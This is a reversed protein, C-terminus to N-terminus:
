PRGGQGLRNGKGTGGSGKFSGTGGNGRRYGLGSARNDCIGDGDADIFTDKGRQLGKRQGTVRDDIGDGNQDIFAERLQKKRATQATTSDPRTQAVAPSVALSVLLLLFLTYRTHMTM